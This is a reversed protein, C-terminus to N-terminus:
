TVNQGRQVIVALKHAAHKRAVTKKTKQSDTKCIKKIIHTYVVIIFIIIHIYLSLLIYINYVVAPVFVLAGVIFVIM